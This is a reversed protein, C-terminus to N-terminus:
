SPLKVNFKQRYSTLQKQIYNHFDLQETKSPDFSFYIQPIPNLLDNSISDFHNKFRDLLKSDRQQIRLLLHTHIQQKCTAIYRQIELRISGTSDYTNHFLDLEEQTQTLLKKFHELDSLNPPPLCGPSTKGNLSMLRYLKEKQKPIIFSLHPTIITKMKELIRNEPSRSLNISNYNRSIRRSLILNQLPSLLRDLDNETKRWCAKTEETPEMLLFAKKFIKKQNLIKDEREQITAITQYEGSIKAAVKEIWIQATTIKNAITAEANPFLIGIINSFIFLACCMVVGILEFLEASLFRVNSCIKELILSSNTSAYCESRAYNLIHIIIKFCRNILFISRSSTEFTLLSISCFLRSFSNPPYMEILPPALDNAITQLGRITFNSPSCLDSCNM